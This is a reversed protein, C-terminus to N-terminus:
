FILFEHNLEKQCKINCGETNDKYCCEEGCIHRSKCFCEEEKYLLNESKFIKKLDQINSKLLM